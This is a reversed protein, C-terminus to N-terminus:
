IDSTEVQPPQIKVSLGEEESFYDGNEGGIDLLEFKAQQIRLYHNEVESMEWISPTIDLSKLKLVEFYKLVFDCHKKISKKNFKKLLRRQFQKLM